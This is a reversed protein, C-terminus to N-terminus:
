WSHRRRRSDSRASTAPPPSPADQGPRHPDRRELPRRDLRGRAPHEIELGVGIQGGHGAIRRLPEQVGARQLLGEAARGRGDRHLELVGADDLGARSRQRGVAREGIPRCAGLRQASACVDDRCREAERVGVDDRVCRRDHEVPRRGCHRVGGRLVREAVEGRIRCGPRERDLTALRERRGSRELVRPEHAHLIRAGEARDTSERVGARDFARAGHRRVHRVVPRERGAERRSDQVDVARVGRAGPREVDLDATQSGAGTVVLEVDGASDREAARELDRRQGAERRGFAVTERDDLAARDRAAEVVHDARLHAGSKAVGDLGSRAGDDEGDRAPRERDAVGDCVLAASGDERDAQSGRIGVVRDRDAVGRRAARRRLADVVFALQAQERERGVLRRLRDGDGGDLIREVLVVLGEGDHEQVRAAGRDGVVGPFAVMVSSSASGSSEITSTAGTVSPSGPSM